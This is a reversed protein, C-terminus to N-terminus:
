CDVTSCGSVNPMHYSEGECVQSPITSLGFTLQNSITKVKSKIRLISRLGSTALNSWLKMQESKVPNMDNSAAINSSPPAAFPLYRSFDNQSAKQFHLLGGSRLDSDSPFHFLKSPSLLVTLPALLSPMAYDSSALASDSSRTSASSQACNSSQQFHLISMTNDSLASVSDSPRVSPSALPRAGNSSQQFHVISMTNDSLASVSASPQNSALSQAVNLIQSDSPRNSASSRASNLSQHRPDFSPPEKSPIMRIAPLPGHSASTM